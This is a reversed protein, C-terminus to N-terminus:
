LSIIKWGYVDNEAKRYGARFFDFYISYDPTHRSIASPAFFTDEVGANIMRLKMNARAAKLTDFFEYQIEGNHAEVLVIREM